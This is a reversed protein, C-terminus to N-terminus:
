KFGGQQNSLPVYNLEPHQNVFHVVAALIPKEPPVFVIAQGSQEAQKILRELTNKLDFASIDKDISTGTLCFSCAEGSALAYSTNKFFAQLSKSVSGTTVWGVIPVPLAWLSDLMKMNYFTEDGNSLAYSGPDNTKEDKMPLDLWTEFGNQRAQNIQEALQAADVSFSLTFFPPIKQMMQSTLLTDLGTQLIVFSIRPAQLSPARKAYIANPRGAQYHALPKDRTPWDPLQNFAPFSFNKKPEATNDGIVPVSLVVRKPTPAYWYGVGIGLILYLIFCIIFLILRKM